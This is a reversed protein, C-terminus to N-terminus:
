LQSRMLNQGPSRLTENLNSVLILLPNSVLTAVVWLCSQMVSIGGWGWHRSMFAVERPIGAFSAPLRVPRFSKCSGKITKPSSFVQLTKFTEPGEQSKHTTWKRFKDLIPHRLESSIVVFSFWILSKIILSKIIMLFFMTKLTNFSSPGYSWLDPPHSVCVTPPHVSSHLSLTNCVCLM